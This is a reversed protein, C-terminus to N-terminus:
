WLPDSAVVSTSTKPTKCVNWTIGQMTIHALSNKKAMIESPNHTNDDVFYFKFLLDWIYDDYHTGTPSPSLPFFFLKSYFIKFRNSSFDKDSEQKSYSM